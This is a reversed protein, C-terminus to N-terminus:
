RGASQHWYALTAVDFKKRGDWIGVNYHWVILAVVGAGQRVEKVGRLCYRGSRWGLRGCVVDM